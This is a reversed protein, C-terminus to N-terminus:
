RTRDTTPPLKCRVAYGQVHVVYEEPGEPTVGAYVLAARRVGAALHVDTAIRVRAPQSLTLM